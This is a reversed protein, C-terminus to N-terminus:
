RTGKQRLASLATWVHLLTKEYGEDTRHLIYNWGCSKCITAIAARHEEIRQQYATRISPVNQVNERATQAPDEFVARGDFPLEIEAPDLVQIVVGGGTLPVLGKFSTEIERPTSLFDGILLLESNKQAKMPAHTPLAEKDEGANLLNSINELSHESRGTQSTGLMGVREGTHTMLIALALTLVQAAEKKTPFAYDSTFNMTEVSCIWFLATQPLQREKQRIFVRDTKGSQRWDIDQPRDQPTYERFQWFKEGAGARRQAHEGHFINQAAREAKLMLAPLASAAEEAKRRLLPM